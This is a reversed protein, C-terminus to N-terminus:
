EVSIPHKPVVTIRDLEPTENSTCDFPIFKVTNLSNELGCMYCMVLQITCSLFLNYDYTILNDHRDHEPTENSTCDIHLTIYM